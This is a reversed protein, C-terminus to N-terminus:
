AQIGLQRRQRDWQLPLTGIRRLHQATLEIPQNGAFIAEVIDPALFALQLHRGVDSAHIGNLAAIENISGCTGSVLQESWVHARAVLAILKDDPKGM